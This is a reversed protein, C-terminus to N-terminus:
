KGRVRLKQGPYIREDSLHNLEVVEEPKMGYKRGISYLTDGPQVIHFTAKGRFPRAAKKPASRTTASKKQPKAKLAAFKEEMQRTVMSLSAEIRDLRSEIRSTNLDLAERSVFGKGTEELRDVRDALRTLRDEISAIKNEDEDKKSNPMFLVFLVVLAVIVVSIIGVPMEEPFKFRKLRGTGKRDFNSPNDQPVDSKEPGIRIRSMTKEEDWPM